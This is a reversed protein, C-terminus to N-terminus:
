TSIHHLILNTQFLLKCQDSPFCKKVCMIAAIFQVEHLVKKARDNDIMTQVTEETEAMLGMAIYSSAALPTVIIKAGGGAFM